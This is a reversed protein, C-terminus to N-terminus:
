YTLQSDEYVDLKGNKNLDRYYFGGDTRILGSQAMVAFLCITKTKPARCFRIGGGACGAGAAYFLLKNIKM